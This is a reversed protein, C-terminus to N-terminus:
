TMDEASRQILLDQSIHQPNGTETGAISHLLHLNKRGHPLYRVFDPLGIQWIAFAFFKSALFKREM